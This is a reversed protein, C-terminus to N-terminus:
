TAGRLFERYIQQETLLPSSSLPLTYSFPLSPPFLRQFQSLLSKKKIKIKKLNVLRDIKSLGIGQGEGERGRRVSCYIYIYSIRWFLLNTPQKEDQHLLSCHECFTPMLGHILVRTWGPFREASKFYTGMSAKFVLNFVQYLLTILKSFSLLKYLSTHLSHYNPPHTHTHTRARM